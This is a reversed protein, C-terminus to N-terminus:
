LGAARCSSRSCGRCVRALPSAAKRRNSTAQAELRRLMHATMLAPLSGLAARAKPRRRRRAKSSAKARPSRGGQDSFPPCPSRALLSSVPSTPKPRTPRMDGALVSYEVAAMFRATPVPRRASRGALMDANPDLQGDRWPMIIVWHRDLVVTFPERRVM